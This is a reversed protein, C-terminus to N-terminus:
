FIVVHHRPVASVVANALKFTAIGAYYVTSAATATSAYTGTSSVKLDQFEDFFVIGGTGESTYGGSPTVAASATFNSGILVENASTTTPTSGSTISTSTASNFSSQDFCSSTCTGVTYEAMFGEHAFGVDTYTITESGGAINFAAFYFIEHASVGISGSDAVKTYTNTGTIAPTGPTQIFVVIIAHGAVTGALTATSGSSGTFTVFQVCGNSSSSCATAKAFPVCALLLGFFVLLRKIM